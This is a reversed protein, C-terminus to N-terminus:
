LVQRIAVAALGDRLGPLLAAEALLPFAAVLVFRQLFGEGGAVRDGREHGGLPAVSRRARSTTATPRPLPRSATTPFRAPWSRTWSWRGRGAATATSSAAGSASSSRAAPAPGWSPPLRTGAPQPRNAVATPSSGARAGPSGRWRVPSTFT